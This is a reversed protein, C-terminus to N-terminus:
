IRGEKAEVIERTIDSEAGDRLVSIRREGERLMDELQKALTRGREYAAFSDSLPLTGGELQSVIERLKEIGEEFTLDKQKARTM